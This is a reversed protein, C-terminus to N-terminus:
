EGYFYATLKLKSWAWGVLFVALFFVLANWPTALANLVVNLAASFCFGCFALELGRRLDRPLWRGRERPGM